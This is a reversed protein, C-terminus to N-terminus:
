SFVFEIPALSFRGMPYTKFNTGLSNTISLPKPQLGIWDQFMDIHDKELKLNPPTPIIANLHEMNDVQLCLIFRTTAVNIM